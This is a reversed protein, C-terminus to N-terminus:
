AARPTAPLALRSSSPRSTPGGQGGLGPPTAPAKHERAGTTGTRRAPGRGRRGGLIPPSQPPAAVGGSNPAPRPNSCADRPPGAGPEWWDVVTGELAWTPLEDYGVLVLRPEVSALIRRAADANMERDFPVVIAGLKWLAFLYVPTRWHNPLWYVVRDGERVGLAALEEALRDVRELLERSTLTKWILGHQGGIAVADPHRETRQRLLEYLHTSM